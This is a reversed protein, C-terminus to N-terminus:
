IGDTASIACPLKNQGGAFIYHFNVRFIFNSSLKEKKEGDFGWDRGLKRWNGRKQYDM